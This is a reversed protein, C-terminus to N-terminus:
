RAVKTPEDSDEFKQRASALSFFSDKVVSSTFCAAELDVVERGIKFEGRRITSPHASILLDMTLIDRREPTANVFTILATQEYGM